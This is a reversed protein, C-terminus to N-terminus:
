TKRAGIGVGMEHLGIVTSQIGGDQRLHFVRLPRDGGRFGARRVKLVAKEGVGFWACYLAESIVMIQPNEISEKYRVLTHQRVTCQM